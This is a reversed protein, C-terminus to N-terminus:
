NKQITRSDRENGFKRLKIKQKVWLAIKNDM